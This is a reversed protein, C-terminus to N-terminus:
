HHVATADRGIFRLKDPNRVIYIGSILSGGDFEFALTQIPTGDAAMVLCGAQGNVWALQIRTGPPAPHKRAIGLVVKVVRECGHVPIGVAVVRGGGDSVLAVDAALLRTLAATDGSQAADLFAVVLCQSQEPPIQYRPRAERVRARARTALQRCATKSRGLARAVETFDADFVDHLLFAARELPSLRELALMFAYSLDSAFESAAEPGPQLLADDELIPEPLWPGVYVERQAQASKLQDLCLRTVTQRLFARPQQVRSRDTDRWRLWAEQVADEADARSGLMRYALGLLPGRHAEFSETLAATAKMM